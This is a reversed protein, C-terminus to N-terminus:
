RLEVTANPQFAPSVHSPTLIPSVGNPTYTQLFGVSGGGAGCGYFNATPPNGPLPQQGVWGGDGGDGASNIANGGRAGIMDSMTGDAGDRGLGGNSLWGEGGGGGNAFVRGTISVNRGQVVINGGAGGGFGPIPVLTSFGGAGGGGGVSLTGDIAVSGHCSVFMLAGGGGGFDPDPADPTDAIRASSAGGVFSALLSPNMSPAGGNAAGGLAGSGNQATGGAGGGTAGGAGGGAAFLLTQSNGTWPGGSVFTGGGPGNVGKHAGADITGSVTLDDDAVFAIARGTMLKSGSITVAASSAVSITRARVVCLDAGGQPIVGGTCTTDVNPDIAGSGTISLTDVAAPTDCVEPMYKPQLYKCHPSPIDGCGLDCPALEYGHGSASCTFAMSGRCEKIEGPTCSLAICAGPDGGVSGDADCYPFNPDSCTGDGCTAAPNAQTCSGFVLAAVVFLWGERMVRAYRVLPHKM